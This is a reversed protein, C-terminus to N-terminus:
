TTPIAVGTVVNSYGSEQSDSGVATTAYCYSTGNTVTADRYSTSPVLAPNIKSFSGCSTSYNSRYVNYGSVNSSSSAVWSLDVSHTAPSTNASTQSPPNSVGACGVLLAMGMLELALLRFKM